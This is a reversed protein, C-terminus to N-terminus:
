KGFAATDISYPVPNPWRASTLPKFKRAQRKDGSTIQQLIDDAQAESLAIDGLLSSALAISGSQLHLCYLAHFTSNTTFQQHGVITILNTLVHDFM